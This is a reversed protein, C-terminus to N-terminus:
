SSSLEDLLAQAEKYENLECIRMSSWGPNLAAKLAVPNRSEIAARLIPIQETIIKNHMDDMRKENAQTTKLSDRYKALRKSSYINTLIDDLLTLREDLTYGLLNVVEDYTRRVEPIWNYTIRDYMELFESVIPGARARTSGGGSMSRYYPVLTNQRFQEIIRLDGEILSNAEEQMRKWGNYDSALSILANITTTISAGSHSFIKMHNFIINKMTDSPDIVRNYDQAIERSEVYLWANVIPTCAMNIAEIANILGRRFLDDAVFSVDYARQFNM